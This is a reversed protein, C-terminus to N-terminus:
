IYLIYLFPARTKPPTPTTVEPFFEDTPDAAGANPTRRPTSKQATSGRELAEGLSIRRPTSKRATSGRELGEGEPIEDEKKALWVVFFLILGIAGLLSGLAGANTVAIASCVLGFFFLLISLAIFGYRKGGTARVGARLRNGALFYPLFSIVAAIVGANVDATNM